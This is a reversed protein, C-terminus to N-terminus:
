AMLYIQKIYNNLLYINFIIMFSFFAKGPRLMPWVIVEHITKKAFDLGAIDSYSIKAGRDLIESEIMEIM